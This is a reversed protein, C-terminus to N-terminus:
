VRFVVSLHSQVRPNLMHSSGCLSVSVPTCVASVLGSVFVVFRWKRQTSARRHAGSLRDWKTGPERFSLGEGCFLESFILQAFRQASVSEPERRDLPSFPPPFSVSPPTM